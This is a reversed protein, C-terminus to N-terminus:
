LFFWPKTAFLPRQGRQNILLICCGRNIWLLPYLITATARDLGIHLAWTQAQEKTAFTVSDDIGLEYLTPNDIGDFMYSLIATFYAKVNGDGCVPFGMWSKGSDLTSTALAYHGNELRVIKTARESFYSAIRDEFSRVDNTTLTIGAQIDNSSFIHENVIRRGSCIPMTIAAAHPGGRLWYEAILKSTSGESGKYYYLWNYNYEDIVTGYADKLVFPITKKETGRLFFCEEVINRDTDASAILEWEHWSLCGFPNLAGQQYGCSKLLLTQEPVTLGKLGQITVFRNEMRETFAGKRKMQRNRREPDFSKITAM